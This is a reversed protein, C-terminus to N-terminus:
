VHDVFVGFGASEEGELRREGVRDKPFLLHDVPVLAQLDLDVHSRPRELLIQIDSIVLLQVALRVIDLPSQELENRGTLWYRILRKELESVESEHATTM